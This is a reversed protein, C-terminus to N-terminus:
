MHAFLARVRKERPYRDSVAGSVSAMMMERTTKPAPQDKLSLQMCILKQDEVEKGTIQNGTGVM